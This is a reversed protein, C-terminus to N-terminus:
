RATDTTKAAEAETFLKTILDYFEKQKKEPLHALLERIDNDGFQLTERMELIKKKDWGEVYALWLEIDLGMGYKKIRKRLDFMVGPTEQQLTNKLKEMQQGHFEPRKKWDTITDENIHYKEAFAKQSKPLGESRRIQPTLVSWYLFAEYAEKLRVESQKEGDWIVIDSKKKGRSTKKDSNNHSKKSAM